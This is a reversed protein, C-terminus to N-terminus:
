AKMSSDTLVSSSQVPSHPPLSKSLTLPSFGAGAASRLDIAPSAKAVKSICLLRCCYCPIMGLPSHPIPSGKNLLFLQPVKQCGLFLFCPCSVANKGGKRLFGQFIDWNCFCTCSQVGTSNAAAYQQRSHQETKTEKEELLNKDKWSLLAPKETLTKKFQIISNTGKHQIAQPTRLGKLLPKPLTSSICSFIRTDRGGGCVCM